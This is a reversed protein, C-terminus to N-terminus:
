RTATPPKLGYPPYKKYDLNQTNFNLLNNNNNARTSPADSSSWGGWGARMGHRGGTCAILPAMLLSSSSVCCKCLNEHRVLEFAPGALPAELVVLEIAQLAENACCRVPVAAAAARMGLAIKVRQKQLNNSSSRLMMMM